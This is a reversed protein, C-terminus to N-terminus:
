GNSEGWDIISMNKIIKNEILEKADPCIVSMLTIPKPSTNEM